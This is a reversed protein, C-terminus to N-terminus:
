SDDSPPGKAKVITDNLAQAIAFDRERSAHQYILAARLSSHGLRTM